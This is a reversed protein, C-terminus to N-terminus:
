HCLEIIHQIMNILFLCFGKGNGRFGRQLDPRSRFTGLWPNHRENGATINIGFTGVRDSHVAATSRMQSAIYNNWEQEDQWERVCPPVVIKPEELPNYWSSQDSSDRESVYRPAFYNEDKEQEDDKSSQGRFEYNMKIHETYNTGSESNDSNFESSGCGGQDNNKKEDEKVKEKGKENAKSDDESSYIREKGKQNPLSNDTPSYFSSDNENELNQFTIQSSSTNSNNEPMFSTSTTSNNQDSDQGQADHALFAFWGVVGM